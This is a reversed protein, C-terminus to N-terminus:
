KFNNKESQEIGELKDPIFDEMHQNQPTQKRANSKKRYGPGHFMGRGM